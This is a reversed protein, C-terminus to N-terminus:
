ETRCLSDRCGDVFYLPFVSDSAEGPTADFHSFHTNFLYISCGVRVRFAGIVSDTRFSRSDVVQFSPFSTFISIWCSACVCAHVRLGGGTGEAGECSLAKPLLSRTRWHFNKRRESNLHFSGPFICQLGTSNPGKGTWILRNIGLAGPVPSLCWPSPLIQILDRTSWRPKGSAANGARELLHISFTGNM